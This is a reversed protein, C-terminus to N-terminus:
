DRREACPSETSRTSKLRFVAATTESRTPDLPLIATLSSSLRSCTSGALDHDSPAASPQRPPECCARVRKQDVICISGRGIVGVTHAQQLRQHIRVVVDQLVDSTDVAPPAVRRDPGVRDEYRYRPRALVAELLRTVARPRGAWYRRRHRRRERAPRRHTAPDRCRYREPHPRLGAQTREFPSRCREDVCRDIGRRQFACSFTPIPYWATSVSLRHLQFRVLAPTDGGRTLLSDQAVRHRAKNRVEGWKGRGPM